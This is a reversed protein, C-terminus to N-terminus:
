PGDVSNSWTIGEARRKAHLRAISFANATTYLLTAIGLVIVAVPVWVLEFLPAGRPASIVFFPLLCLIIGAGVLVDRKSGKWKVSDSQDRMGGVTLPAANLMMLLAAVGLLFMLGGVEQSVPHPDSAGLYAWFEEGILEDVDRGDGIMRDKEDGFTGWRMVERSEQQSEGSSEMASDALPEIVVYAISRVAPAGRTGSTEEREVRDIEVVRVQQVDPSNVLRLTQTAGFVALMALLIPVIRLGIRFVTVRNTM